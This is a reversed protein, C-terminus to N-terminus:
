RDRSTDGVLGMEFRLLNKPADSDPRISLSGQVGKTNGGTSPTPTSEDAPRGASGLYKRCRGCVAAIAPSHFSGILLDWPESTTAARVLGYTDACASNSRTAEASHREGISLALLAGQVVESCSLAGVGPTSSARGSPCFAGLLRPRSSCVSLSCDSSSCSSLAVMEEGAMEALLM